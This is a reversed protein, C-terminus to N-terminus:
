EILKQELLNKLVEDPNTSLEKVPFEPFMLGTATLPEIPFGYPKPFSIILNGKDIKYRRILFFNLDTISPIPKDVSLRLRGIREGNVATQTDPPQVEIIKFVRDENNEFRIEDGVQVEWDDVTPPFGLFEPEKAGAFSTNKQFYDRWGISTRVGEAPIGIDESGPNYDESMYGNYSGTDYSGSSYTFYQQKFGERGYAQNGNESLMEIRTYDDGVFGWYSSSVATGPLSKTGELRLTATQKGRNTTWGTPQYFFYQQWRDDVSHHLDGQVLTEIKDGQKIVNSPDLHLKMRWRIKVVSGEDRVDSGGCGQVDMAQKIQDGRMRIRLNNNSERTILQGIHQLANFSKIEIGTSTNPNLHVVDCFMSDVVLKKKQNNQKIFLRFDGCDHSWKSGKLSWSKGNKTKTQYMKTTDFTYNVRYTYDDSLVKGNGVGNLGEFDTKPLTTLGGNEENDASSTYSATVNIGSGTIINEPSLREPGFNRVRGREITEYASFSYDNFGAPDDNLPEKGTVFISSTYARSAAQSYLIPFPKLGTKFVPKTDNLYYLVESTKDTIAINAKEGESLSGELNYYTYEGIRPNAANGEEDIIYKVEFSTKDNLLPYTDYIRNFYASYAKNIDVTPLKGYTGEDEENWINYQDSTSKSGDYRLIINSPSTYFSNVVDAKKATNDKIQNLNVPTLANTSYDVDMVKTNPNSNLANGMFPNCDDPVQLINDLYTPVESPFEPIRGVINMSYDSVILSSNVTDKFGISGTNVSVVLRLAAGPQIYSSSIITKLSIFNDTNIDDIYLSSSALITGLSDNPPSLFLNLSATQWTQNAPTFGNGGYKDEGYDAAGYNTPPLPLANSATLNISATLGLDDQSFTGFEYVGDKRESALSSSFSVYADTIKSPNDNSGTEALLYIKYPRHLYRNYNWANVDGIGVEQQGRFVSLQQGNKVLIEHGEDTIYTKPDGVGVLLSNYKPTPYYLPQSNKPEDIINSPDYVLIQNTDEKYYYSIFDDAGSGGYEFNPDGYVATGYPTEDSTNRFSPGIKISRNQGSYTGFSSSLIHVSSTPANIFWPISSATYPFSSDYDRETSGTNFHKLHDILVGSTPVLNGEVYYNADNWGRILQSTGFNEINKPFYGQAISSSYGSSSIPNDIQGSSTAYWTYEGSAEFNFNRQGSTLDSVARSSPSQEVVLFSYNGKKTSNSLYYDEVHQSGSPNYMFINSSDRAGIMAFSTILSDSIYPSINFDNSSLHNIKIYKVKNGDNWLWAYGPPPGFTDLTFQAESVGIQIFIPEIFSQVIQEDAYGNLYVTHFDGPSTSGSQYGFLKETNSLNTLRYYEIAM